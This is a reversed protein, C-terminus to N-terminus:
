NCARFLRGRRRARLKLFTCLAVLCVRQELKTLFITTANISAFIFLAGDRPEALGRPLPM